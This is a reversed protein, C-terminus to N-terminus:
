SANSEGPPAPLPCWHSVDNPLLGRRGIWMFGDLHNTFFLVPKDMPPQESRPRWRPLQAEAAVLEGVTKIFDNETLVAENRLRGIEGAAEDMLDQASIANPDHCWTRLREVIDNM